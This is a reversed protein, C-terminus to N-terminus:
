RVRVLNIAFVLVACAASFAYACQYGLLMSGAVAPIITIFAMVIATSFSAFAQRVVTGFSSGDTMLSHPLDSMSWTNMPSILGSVGAQRVGQLLAVLWFPMGADAFVMPVSGLVLLASGCLVVPFAGFKDSAFGALPNFVLAVAAGSLMVIGSDLASGGMVNQVFLPTLLTICLFSAWLFNLSWFGARYKRSQMIALNILPHEVKTQRWLFVAFVALGAVVPVWVYVSSVGFSSVNSFGLLLGVLGVTSLLFSLLDFKLASAQPKQTQPVLACCALLVLSLLLLAVFFSRWGALDVFIGGITPGVNPSFGMAIGAVGMVGGRREPPFSQMIVSMMMPVTIGASVAQLIRGLILVEFNLAVAALFAGAVLMVACAVIIRRYSFRRMLFPVVPVTVGLTLMYITTAWQALAPEVGLDVSVSNLMANLATQSLNGLSSILIIVAILGIVGRSTGPQKSAKVM